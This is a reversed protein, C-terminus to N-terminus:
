AFNIMVEEESQAHEFVGSKAHQRLDEILSDMMVEVSFYLSATIRHVTGDSATTGHIVFRDDYKHDSYACVSVGADTSMSRHHVYMISMEMSDELMDLLDEMPLPEDLHFEVVAYYDHVECKGLSTKEFVGPILEAALEIFDDIQKEFM